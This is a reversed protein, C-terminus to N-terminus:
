SSLCIFVKRFISHGFLTIYFRHKFNDVTFHYLYIDTDQVYSIKFGGSIDFYVVEPHGGGRNVKYLHNKFSRIDWIRYDRLDRHHCLIKFSRLGLQVQNINFSTVKGTLQVHYTFNSWLKKVAAIKVGKLVLSVEFLM